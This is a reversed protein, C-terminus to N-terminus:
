GFARGPLAGALAIEKTRGCARQACAQGFAKGVLRFQDGTVFLVFQDAMDPAQRELREVKM